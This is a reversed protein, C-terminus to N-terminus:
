VKAQIEEGELEDDETPRIEVIIDGAQLCDAEHEWFGCAVGNRYIRLGQGGTALERFSKGIEDPMVEREVLQVRGTVSALDGLYDAIHAGRASGALLLGTFRVPNIVNDAGAQRALLENDAARVVM